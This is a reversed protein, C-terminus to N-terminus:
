CPLQVVAEGARAVTDADRVVAGAHVEADVINEARGVYFRIVSIDIRVNLRAVMIRNDGMKYQLLCVEKQGRCFLSRMPNIRWLSSIANKHKIPTNGDNETWNPISRKYILIHRISLNTLFFRTSTLFNAYKQVIKCM